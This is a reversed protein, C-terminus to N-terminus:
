QGAEFKEIAARWDLPLPASKNAAYDYVVIVSRGTAMVQRTSRDEIQHAMSFSSNGIREVRSKVELRAGYRIPAKFQCAAEALIFSLNTQGLTPLGLQTLYEMRSQEMYTFFVANNVHGLADIDGFRVDMPLSFRYGDEVL